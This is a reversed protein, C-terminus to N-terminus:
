RLLFINYLFFEVCQVCLGTDWLIPLASNSTVRCLYNRLINVQMSKLINTPVWQKITRKNWLKCWLAANFIRIGRLLKALCATGLVRQNTLLLKHCWSCLQQAQVSLGCKRATLVLCFHQILLSCTIWLGGPCSFYLLTSMFYVYIWSPRFSSICYSHSVTVFFSWFSFQCTRKAAKGEQWRCLDRILNHLLGYEPSTDSSVM